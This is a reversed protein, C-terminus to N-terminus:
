DVEFLPKGLLEDEEGRVEVEYTGPPLRAAPVSLVVMKKGGVKRAALRGERWIEEETSAKRLITVFSTSPEDRDLLLQIDVRQTGAPVRHPREGVASRLTSIALQFTMVSPHCIANLVPPIRPFQTAVWLGGTVFFLSAAVAAARVEPRSLLQFVVVEASVPERGAEVLGRVLALRARGGPSARLRRLLRGREARPLEGRVAAAMLDGEMAESLEFLADDEFLRREINEAQEEDLGGLLYRKLLIEDDTMEDNTLENSRM